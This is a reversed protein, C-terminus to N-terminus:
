EGASGRPKRDKLRVASWSNKRVKAKVVGDWTTRLNRVQQLIAQREITYNRNHLYKLLNIVAPLPLDKAGPFTWRVLQLALAAVEVVERGMFNVVPVELAELGSRVTKLTVGFQEAISGLEVLNLFGGVPHASRPPIQADKLRPRDGVPFCIEVPIQDGSPSPHPSGTGDSPPSGEGPASSACLSSLESPIPGRAELPQQGISGVPHDLTTVGGPSLSSPGLISDGPNSEAPHPVGSPTHYGDRPSGTAADDSTLIAGTM